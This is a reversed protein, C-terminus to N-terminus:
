RPSPVQCSSPPPGRTSWPHARAVTLAPAPIALLSSSPPASTSSSRALREDFPNLVGSRLFAVPRQSRGNAGRGVTALSHPLQGVSSYARRRSLRASGRLLGPPHASCLGGVVARVLGKVVLGVVDLFFEGGEDGQIKQPPLHNTPQQTPRAM